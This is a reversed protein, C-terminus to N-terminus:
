ASVGLDSGHRQDSEMLEGLKILFKPICSDRGCVGRAGGRFSM